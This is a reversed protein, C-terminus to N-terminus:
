GSPAVGFSIPSIRSEYRWFSAVRANAVPRSSAPAAAAAASKLAEPLTEALGPALTVGGLTVPGNTVGAWIVPGETVGGCIVVAGDTVGGWILWIGETVAADGEAPTVSSAMVTVTGRGWTVLGSTVGGEALPGSTESGDTVPGWTDCGDTVPGSTECGDALMVGPVETWTEAPIV